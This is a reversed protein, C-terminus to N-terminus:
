GVYRPAPMDRTGGYGIEGRVVVMRADCPFKRLVWRHFM